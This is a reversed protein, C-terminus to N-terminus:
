LCDCSEKREDGEATCNPNKKMTRHVEADAPVYYSHAFYYSRGQVESWGLHPIKEGPPFRLVRGSLVGIGSQEPAEDSGEYLAQMGLCIGFYPTGSKRAYKIARLMGAIGRKGFGGPVLIADYDHLENEYDDKMLNESEVWTVNM